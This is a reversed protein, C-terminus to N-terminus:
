CLYYANTCMSIQDNDSYRMYQKLGEVILMVSNPELKDLYLHTRSFSIDLAETLQILLKKVEVM